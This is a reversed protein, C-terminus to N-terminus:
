AIPLAKIEIPEENEDTELVKLGLEETTTSLGSVLKLTLTDKSGGEFQQPKQVGKLDKYSLVFESVPRNIKVISGIVSGEITGLIISTEPPKGCQFTFLSTSPSKPKLDLGVKPAPKESKVIYGLEGELPQASEIEGAQGPNSQCEQKTPAYICGIFDVTVSETKPGTYEGAFTSGGCAIKKGGVTELENGEGSGEFKPKPGPGPVWNYLGKGGASKTCNAGQWEGTKGVAKVCHGFEPVAASATAAAGASVAGVAALALVCMRIPKM